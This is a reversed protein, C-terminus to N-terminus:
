GLQSKGPAQRVLGEGRVGDRVSKEIDEEERNKTRRSTDLRIALGQHVCVEARESGSM